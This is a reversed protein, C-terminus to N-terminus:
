PRMDSVDWILVTTDISGTALRKGDPSFALSTVQGRHGPFERAQKGTATDWITVVGNWDGAALWKGDPAYAIQFPVFRAGTFERVQKGTAADFVYIRAHDTQTALSSLDGHWGAAALVRGDPSWSFATFQNKSGLGGHETLKGTRTDISFLAIEGAFSAMIGRLTRGDPSFSLGGGARLRKAWLQTLTASDWFRITSDGASANSSATALSKGDPSVVPGYLYGDSAKTERIPRGTAPDFVALRGSDGARSVVALTRGDPALAIGDVQDSPKDM